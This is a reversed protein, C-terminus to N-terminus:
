EMVADRRESLPAFRPHADDAFSVRSCESQGLDQIRQDFVRLVAHCPQRDGPRSADRSRSAFPLAIRQVRQVRSEVLAEALFQAVQLDLGHVHIGGVVHGAGDQVFHAVVPLVLVALHSVQMPSTVHNAHNGHLHSLLVRDAPLQRFSGHGEEGSSRAADRQFAGFGKGVVLRPDVDHDRSSGIDVVGPRLAPKAQAVLFPRLRLGVEDAFDLPLIGREPRNRQRLFVIPDAMDADECPVEPGGYGCSAVQVVNGAVYRVRLGRLVRDMLGAPM